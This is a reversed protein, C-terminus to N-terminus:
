SCGGCFQSKRFYNAGENYENKIDSYKISSIVAMHQKTRSFIVNLRKEGGKRNIPGFNMLMRKNSDYGYCVSMIIIDREDGQINELNKIFLGVLQDNDHREFEEELLKQFSPDASGLAYLSKEIEHQQEQSFAM